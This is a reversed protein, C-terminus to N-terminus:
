SLRPHNSSTLQSHGTNPPSEVKPVVSSTSPMKAVHDIIQAWRNDHVNLKYPQLILDKSSWHKTGEYVDNQTEHFIGQERGIQLAKQKIENKQQPLLYSSQLRKNIMDGVHKVVRRRRSYFLTNQGKDQEKGKILPKFKYGPMWVDHVKANKEKRNWRSDADDMLDPRYHPRHPNMQSPGFHKAELSDDSVKAAKRHVGLGLHLNLDLDDNRSTAAINTHEMRIRKGAIRSSQPNFERHNSGHSESQTAAELKPEIKVPAPLALSPCISSIALAVFVLSIIM